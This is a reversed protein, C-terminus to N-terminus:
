AVLCIDHTWELCPQNPQQQHASISSFNSPLCVRLNNLPGTRLAMESSLHERNASISM